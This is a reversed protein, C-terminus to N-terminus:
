EVQFSMHQYFLAYIDRSMPQGKRDSQRDPPSVSMRLETKSLKFLAQWFHSTFVKDRDSVLAELMGHLKFVNDIYTQAVQMATDPHALPLIHAYKTLKDVVVLVTTFGASRPLEEVFDLSVVQWAEKPVALPKLLEPYKVHEPKAQKCMTCQEVFHQVTQRMRPLAFLQHVRHLTAQVGSRGGIAGAHM